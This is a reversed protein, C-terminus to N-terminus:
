IFDLSCKCVMTESPVAVGLLNVIKNDIEMPTLCKKDIFEIVAHHKIINKKGFCTFNM